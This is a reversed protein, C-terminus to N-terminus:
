AETDAPKNRDKKAGFYLMIKGCVTILIMSLFSDYSAIVTGVRPVTLLVEFVVIATVATIATVVVGLLTTRKHTFVNDRFTAIQTTKIM